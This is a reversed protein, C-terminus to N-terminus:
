MMHQSFVAFRVKDVNVVGLSPCVKQIKKKLGAQFRKAPLISFTMLVNNPSLPHVSVSSFAADWDVKAKTSRHNRLDDLLKNPDIESTARISYMVSTVTKSVHSSAPESSQESQYDSDNIFDPSQELSQRTLQAEDTPELERPRKGLVASFDAEGSEM